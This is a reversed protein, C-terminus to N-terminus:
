HNSSVIEVAHGDPDRVLLGERYGVDSKAFSVMGSSIFGADAERLKIAASAEDSVFLTTHRHALDNPRFQPSPRGDKPDLYELFEVGPGDGARLSTIRLHAGEVLNLHAQEPGNNESEGGALLMSIWVGFAGGIFQAGAYFVADPTQIKKLRWFTLTVSPSIHAGSQKGLPSYVISIATIGTAIGILARRIFASPIALVVPSQPHFLVVTFLCASIMFLGLEAGEM